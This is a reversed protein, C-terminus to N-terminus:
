EEHEKIDLMKGLGRKRSDAGAILVEESDCFMIGQPHDVNSTRALADFPRHEQRKTM